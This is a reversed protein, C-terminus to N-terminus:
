AQGATWRSQIRGSFTEKDVIVRQHTGKGIVGSQDEASVSFVLLRGEVEVLTAQAVVNMGVPTPAVHTVEVRTGVSTMGPTLHGAVAKIAAEEMMRVMIPTALGEVEGSGQNLATLDATVVSKVKASLGPELSM